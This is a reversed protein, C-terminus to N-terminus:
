GTRSAGEDDLTHWAAIAEHLEARALEVAAADDLAVLDIDDRAIAPTTSTSAEREARASVLDEYRDCGLRDLALREALELGVLDPRRRRHHRAEGRAEVLADHIEEAVLADAEWRRRDSGTDRALVAEAVAVDHRARAVASWAALRRHRAADAEPDEGPSPGAPSTADDAEGAEATDPEAEVEDVEDIADTSREVSSGGTWLAPIWDAVPLAAGREDADLGDASAGAPVDVATDGTWLAPIWDAVPLATGREDAEDQSPEPEEHPGDVPARDARLAPLLGGVHRHLDATSRQVGAGTGPRPVSQEGM